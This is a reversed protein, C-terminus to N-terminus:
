NPYHLRLSNITACLAIIKGVIQINFQVSGELKVNLCSQSCQIIRFKFDFVSNITLHILYFNSTGNITAM